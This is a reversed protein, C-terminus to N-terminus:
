FNEPMRAKERAVDRTVIRKDVLEKLCQDMTQM